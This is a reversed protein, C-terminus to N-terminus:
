RSALGGKEGPRARLDSINGQRWEKGGCEECYNPFSRWRERLLIGLGCSKCIWIEFSMPFLRTKPFGRKEANM